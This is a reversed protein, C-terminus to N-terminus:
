IDCKNVDDDQVFPLGLGMRADRIATRSIHEKECVERSRDRNM